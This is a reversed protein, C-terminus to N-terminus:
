RSSSSVNFNLSKMVKIRSGPTMGFDSEFARNQDQSSLEM